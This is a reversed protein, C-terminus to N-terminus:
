GHRITRLADGYAAALPTSLVIQVQVGTKPVSGGGNKARAFRPWTKGSFERGVVIFSRRPASNSDSAIASMALEVNACDASAGGLANCRSVARVLLQNTLVGAASDVSRGAASRPTDRVLQFSGLALCGADGLTLTSFRPALSMGGLVDGVAPRGGRVTECNM